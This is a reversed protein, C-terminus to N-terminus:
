FRLGLGWFGLVGHSSYSIKNQSLFQSGFKVRESLRFTLSKGSRQLRRTGSLQSPSPADRRFSTQVAQTRSTSRFLRRTKPRRSPTSRTRSLGGSVSGTKGCAKRRHSTKKIVTTHASDMSSERTGTARTCAAMPGNTSGMARSRTARSSDTMGYRTQTSTCGMAM